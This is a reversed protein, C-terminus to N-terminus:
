ISLCLRQLCALRPKSHFTSMRSQDKRTFQETSPHYTYICPKYVRAPASNSSTHILTLCIFLKGVFQNVVIEIGTSKTVAGASRTVGTGGWSASDACMERRRLLLALTFANGTYMRVALFTRYRSPLNLECKSRKSPHGRHSRISRAKDSSFCGDNSPRCGLGMLALLLVVARGKRRKKAENYCMRACDETSPLHYRL